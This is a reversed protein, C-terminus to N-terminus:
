SKRVIWVFLDSNLRGYPLITQHIRFTPLNKGQEAQLVQLGQKQLVKELMPPGTVCAGGGRTLRSAVVSAWWDVRHSDTYASFPIWVYMWDFTEQLADVNHLAFPIIHFNPLWALQGRRALQNWIFQAQKQAFEPWVYWVFYQQPNRFEICSAMAAECHSLLVRQAQDRMQRLEHQEELCDDLFDFVFPQSEKEGIVEECDPYLLVSAFAQAPTLTPPGQPFEDRWTSPLPVWSVPKENPLLKWSPRINFTQRNEADLLYLRDAHTSIGRNDSVPKGGDGVGAFSLGAADDWWTAKQIAHHRVTVCLRQNQDVYRVPFDKAPLWEVEHSRRPDLFVQLPLERTSMSPSFFLSFLRFAAESPYVPIGRYRLPFVQIGHHDDYLGRILEFTASGTGPLLSLFLEVVPLYDIRGWEMRSMCSMFRADEFMGQPLVYFADKVQRITATGDGNLILDEDRYFFKITEADTQMSRAAMQRLDDRTLREWGAKRSLDLSITNVLGEPRIGVWQGWDLRLRAAALSFGGGTKEKWLCEHLPNGDPDTMLIRQGHNGMFVRHGSVQEKLYGGSSHWDRVYRENEPFRIAEPHELFAPM